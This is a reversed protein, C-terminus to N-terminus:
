EVLTLGPGADEGSVKEVEDFVAGTDIEEQAQLASVIVQLERLDQAMAEVVSGGLERAQRVRVTEVAAEGADVETEEGALVSRAKLLAPIDRLSARVKGQELQSVLYGLAGDVLMTHEDRVKQKASRRRAIEDRAIQDAARLDSVVTPEPPQENPALSMSVVVKDAVEALDHESHEVFYLQRYLAVGAYEAMAFDVRSLWDKTKVWARVSADSRDVARAVARVSRYDPHQMAYLLLGRHQRENEKRRRELSDGFRKITM